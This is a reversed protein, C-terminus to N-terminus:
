SRKQYFHFLGTAEGFVAVAYLAFVPFAFPPNLFLFYAATALVAIVGTLIIAGIGSAKFAKKLLETITTVIGGGVLLLIADLTTPEIAPVTTPEQAMAFVALVFFMSLVFLGKKM